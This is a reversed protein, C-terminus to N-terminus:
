AGSICGYSRMYMWVGEYINMYWWIAEHVKTYMWISGNVNMYWWISDYMCVYMCVYICVYMCVKNDDGWFPKETIIRVIFFNCVYLIWKSFNLLTGYKCSM